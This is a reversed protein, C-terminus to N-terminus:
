KSCSDSVHAISCMECSPHRALCFFTERRDRTVL